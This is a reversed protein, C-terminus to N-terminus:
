QPTMHIDPLEDVYTGIQMFALDFPGYKKGIKKFEEFYGTDGSFFINHEISSIGNKNTEQYNLDTKENKVM